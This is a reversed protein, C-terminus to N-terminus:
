AEVRVNLGKEAFTKSLEEATAITMSPLDAYRYDLGMAKYKSVGLRHFPILDVDRAGLTLCLDAIQSLEDEKCNFDPILPVRVRVEKGRELLLRINSKLLALDGGIEKYKEANATKIDIYFSDTYPIVAEFASFPVIGATDVVTSLSKGMDEARFKVESLLAAVDFPHLLCEGGSVTIGGNDRAYFDIDDLVEGAVDSVARKVGSVTVRSGFDLTVTGNVRAEPNHCWPCSLNCGKFFVTTRIGPGDGVSFHQVDSINLIIEENSM